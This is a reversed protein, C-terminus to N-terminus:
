PALKRALLLAGDLGSGRPARVLGGYRRALRRAFVAGLGGLFAVPVPGEEMLRDVAGAVAREAGALITEACPDAASAAEVIRPAYRAFDAPSATQAFAVVAAAGGIESLVARLIPSTPGLGDHALLAAELLDRGMRAGSGQDGLLFGWGGIMRVQGARQVGFVSGTGVAATIGDEDGLAGKLAVLADTEIRVEAFPLAARLRDAARPVNAGALGLVAVLDDVRGQGAEAVAAEAAAVINRRAGEPDTWVNASAAEGRGLIAGAADAVAARCGSGGGDVGLYLSM